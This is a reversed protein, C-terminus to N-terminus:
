SEGIGMDTDLRLKGEVPDNDIAIIPALKPTTFKVGATPNPEDIADEVIQDLSENIVDL